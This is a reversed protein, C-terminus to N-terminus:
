GFMEAVEAATRSSFDQAASEHLARADAGAAHRTFVELTVALEDYTYGTYYFGGDVPTLFEAVNGVEGGPVSWRTTTAATAQASLWAQADAASPHYRMEFTSEPYADSTCTVPRSVGDGGDCRLPSPYAFVWALGRAGQLPHCAGVEARSGDWCAVPGSSATTSLAVVTVVVALAALGLGGVLLAVPRRFVGLLWEVIRFAIKAPTVASRPLMEARPAKDVRPRPEAVSKEAVISKQVAVPAVPRTIPPADTAASAPLHLAGRAVVLKPDSLTAPPRGTVRQVEAALAPTQSTGGTLYVAALDRAQTRSRELVRALLQGARAVDAAILGEYESRTLSLQAERGGASIAIPVRPYESLEVKASRVADRLKLRAALGGPAELAALIDVDGADGRSTLTAIVWSRIREDFDNGGLREDGASARVFFGEGTSELVAVDTTGGGCDFVAVRAGTPVEGEGAYFAAAAIPESALRITAPEFGARVAAERLANRRSATWEDPHTLWVVDPRASGAIAMARLRVNALVAGVVEAPDVLEGSLMVAARGLLSKPYAEFDGPSTLMRLEAARGVVFQGRERFVSSPTTEALTDLKISEVRGDRAWAAATNSTGLDIALAWSNTGTM